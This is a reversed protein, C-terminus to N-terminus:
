FYSFIGGLGIKLLGIFKGPLAVSGLIEIIKKLKRHFDSVRERETEIINLIQKDLYNKTM